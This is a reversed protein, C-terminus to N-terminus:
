KQMMGLKDSVSLKVSLKVESACISTGIGEKVEMPHGTLSFIEEVV